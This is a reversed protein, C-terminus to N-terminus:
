TLELKAGKGLNCEACLVRLNERENGGGKAIPHIHDIHLVVDPPKRGCLCCGSEKADALLEHRLSLPIERKQRMPKFQFEPTPNTVCGIGAMRLDALKRMEALAVRAAYFLAENARKSPMVCTGRELEGYCHSFAVTAVHCCEEVIRAWETLCDRKTYDNQEMREIMMDRIELQVKYHRAFEKCVPQPTRNRRGVSSCKSYFDNHMPLNIGFVSRSRNGMAPLEQYYRDKTKM